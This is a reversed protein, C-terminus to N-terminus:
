SPHAEAYGGVAYIAPGSYWAEMNWGKDPGTGMSKDPPLTPMWNKDMERKGKEPTLCNAKDVRAAEPPIGLYRQHRGSLSSAETKQAM